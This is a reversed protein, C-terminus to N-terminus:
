DREIESAQRLEVLEGSPTLEKGEEMNVVLFDDCNAYDIADEDSNTGKIEFSCSDFVAYKHKM